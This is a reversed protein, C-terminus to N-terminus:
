FEQLRFSQERRARLGCSGLKDVLAAKEADTLFEGVELCGEPGTFTVVAPEAPTTGMRVLVALSNRDFETHYVPRKLSGRSTDLIVRDDSIRIVERRTGEMYVYGFLVALLLIELGAFPIVMWAGALAFAISIGLSVAVLSIFVWLNGELSLSQNPALLICTRRGRVGGVEKVMPVAEM